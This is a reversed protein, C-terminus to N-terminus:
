CSQTTSKDSCPSCDWKNLQEILDTRFTENKNACETQKASLEAESQDLKWQADRVKQKADVWECFARYLSAHFEATSQINLSNLELELERLLFYVTCLHNNTNELTIQTKLSSVSSLKTTITEGAVDNYAKSKFELNKNSTELEEKAHDRAQKLEEVTQKCAALEDRNKKIFEDLRRRHAGITQEVVKSLSELYCQFEQKERENNAVEKKYDEETKSLKNAESEIAAKDADVAQKQKESRTKEQELEVSRATLKTIIDKPVCPDAKGNSGPQCSGGTTNQQGQTPAEMASEKM